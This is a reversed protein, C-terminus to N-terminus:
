ADGDNVAVATVPVDTAERLRELLGDERWHGEGTTAVLVGDFDGAALRTIATDYPGETSYDGEADYGRESLEEVIRRSRDQADQHAGEDDTLTDLRSAIIPAVVTVRHSDGLVEEVVNPVASPHDFSDDAIVLLHTPM